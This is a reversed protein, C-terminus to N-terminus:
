MLKDPDKNDTVVGSAGLADARAGGSVANAGLGAHGNYLIGGTLMTPKRATLDRPMLRKRTKATGQINTSM